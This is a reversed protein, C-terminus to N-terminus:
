RVSQEEIPSKELSMVEQGVKIKGDVWTIVTKAGSKVAFISLVMGTFMLIGGVMCWRKVNKIM